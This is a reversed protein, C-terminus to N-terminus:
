ATTPGELGKLLEKIHAARPDLAAKKTAEPRVTESAMTTISSKPQNKSAGQAIIQQTQEIISGKPQESSIDRFEGKLEVSEKTIPKGTEAEITNAVLMDFGTQGTDQFFWRNIPDQLSAFLMGERSYQQSLLIQEQTYEGMGGRLRPQVITPCIFVTLNLRNKQRQRQKFFWGIIPINGLLPTQTYSDSDDAIALGSLALIDRNNVNANTQVQRGNRTQEGPADSKASNNTFYSISLDITLNVTDNSTIRPTIALTLPANIWVRKIESAGVNATNTTADPLLRKEGITIETKRNNIGVVHPNSIINNQAISELVELVAWTSGTRSDNFSMAAGGPPVVNLWSTTTPNTSSTPYARLLDSQITNATSAGSTPPTSNTIVGTLQASQFNMDEPMPFCQPNRLMSGLLRSDTYSLDAILVELIVQPQPTDLEEILKRIRGWDDERCAIILKNGGMYQGAFNNKETEKILPKDAKVIVEDFYRDKSQQAIPGASQGTTKEVETKVIRQLTPAFQDADLYQLKYVHLISKGEGIPIDLYKTIFDKIREIDQQKGLLILSNQQGFPMIKVNRSFYTAPETLQARPDVQYQNKGPVQQLEKLIDAVKSAELHNIKVFELKEQVELSDLHEIVQMASRILNSKDSIVIANTTQDFYLGGAAKNPETLLKTLLLTLENEPKELSKNANEAIKLNSLYYIYRIREETDPLKEPAIGIYLPLPERNIAEKTNKIIEIWDDMHIMSYGSMDLLTILLNWADDLTIKKELAITIKNKITADKTPLIVNIQKEAALTNIIDVLNENTYNFSILKQANKKGNCRHAPEADQELIDKLLRAHEQELTEREADAAPVSNSICSVLAFSLLLSSQFRFFVM